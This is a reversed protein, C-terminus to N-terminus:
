PLTNDDDSSDLVRKIRQFNSIAMSVLTLSRNVTIITVNCHGDHIVAGSFLVTTAMVPSKMLSTEAESETAVSTRPAKAAALTVTSTSSLILSM